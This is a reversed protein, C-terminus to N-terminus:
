GVRREELVPKLHKALEETLEVSRINATFVRAFVFMLVLGVVLGGLLGAVLKPVAEWDLGRAGFLGVALGLGLSGWAIGRRFRSSAVVTVDVENAMLKCKLAIATGSFVDDDIYIGM